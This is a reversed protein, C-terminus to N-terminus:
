RTSRAAMASARRSALTPSALQTMEVSAVASRAVVRECICSMKTAGQERAYEAVGIGSLRPGQNVPAINSSFFCERPVGM